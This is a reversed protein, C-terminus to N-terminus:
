NCWVCTHIRLIIISLQTVWWFFKDKWENGGSSIVRKREREDIAGNIKRANQINDTYHTIKDINIQAFNWHNNATGPISHSSWADNELVQPHRSPRRIPVCTWRDGVFSIWPSSVSCPLWCSRESSWLSDRGSLERQEPRGSKWDSSIADRFPVRIHAPFSKSKYKYYNSGFSLVSQPSALKRTSDKKNSLRTCQFFKGKTWHGKRKKYSRHNSVIRLATRFNVLFCVNIITLRFHQM